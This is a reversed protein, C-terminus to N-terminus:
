VPVSSQISGARSRKRTKRVLRVKSGLACSEMCPSLVTRADRESAAIRSTGWLQVWSNTAFHQTPRDEQVIPVTSEAPPPHAAQLAPVPMSGQLIHGRGIAAGHDTQRR